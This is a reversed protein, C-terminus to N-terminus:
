EDPPKGKWILESEQLTRAGVNADSSEATDPRRRSLMWPLLPADLPSERLARQGGVAVVQEVPGGADLSVKM